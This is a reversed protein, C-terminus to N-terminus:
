QRHAQGRLSRLPWLTGFFEALQWVLGMFQFTVSVNM